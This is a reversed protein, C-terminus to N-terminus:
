PRHGRTPRLAEQLTHEISSLQNLRLSLLRNLLAAQRQLRERESRCGIKEALDELACLCRQVTHINKRLTECDRRAEALHKRVEGCPLVVIDACVVDSTAGGIEIPKEVQQMPSGM